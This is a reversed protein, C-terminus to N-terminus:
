FSTALDRARGLAADRAAAAADPGALTPEVVISAVDTIGIFGLALELYKRQFDYGAEPSGEPYAGGRAYVAVARRDRALGQYGAEASWSFTYGPQIIVDLYHKLRYPIGFNWMPVAFVYRDAALFERIVREVEAWARKEADAHPQGHLINYKALVALGDFAPLGAKFVDLTRVTSGPHTDRYAKVFADAVALSHSRGERPSAQIYLLKNM